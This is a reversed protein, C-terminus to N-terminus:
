KSGEPVESISAGCKHNRECNKTSCETGESSYITMHYRAGRKPTHKLTEEGCKKCKKKIEKYSKDFWGIKSGKNELKYEGGCGVCLAPCGQGMDTEGCYAWYHGNELTRGCGGREEPNIRHGYYYNMEITRDLVIHSLFYKEDYTAYHKARERILAMIDCLLIHDADLKPTKNKESM